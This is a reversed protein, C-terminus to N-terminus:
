PPGGSSTDIRRPRSTTTIARPRSSTVLRPRGGAPDPAGGTDVALAQTAAGVDALAVAAAVTVTDGAAAVDAIAAAAAVGLTQGASGSDALATTAAVALAQTAAATDALSAVATVALADGAAGNDSLSIAIGAVLSDAAAGADTLTIAIGAVLGDVATGADGLSVGAAVAISQGAAGGDTLPTSSSAALSDAASAAEALPVAAAVALAETGSGAEALSIPTAGGSAPLVEAYCWSLNTSTGPVTINLTNSVGSVDDASTRHFFGYTFDTGVNASGDRTAGTGATMAGKLDWDCVAGFVQGGTASATYAQAISAASTSGTGGHAGIPTTTDAGTLVWVKIAAQRAGSGTGTTVTITMPLPSAGVVARWKATQGDVTPAPSTRHKWDLLTYTLHSALSDTISPAAPDTATGTNGAWGVEIISNAPPTFSATAVTATTASTQTAIAPSSADIALAV